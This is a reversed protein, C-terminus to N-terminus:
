LLSALRLVASPTTILVDGASSLALGRIGGSPPPVRPSIGPATPGILTTITGDPAVMRVKGDDLVFLNGSGDPVITTIDTFQGLKGDVYGSGRSSVYGASDVGYAGGITTVRGQAVKRLLDHRRYATLPDVPIHADTRDPTSSDAVYLTGDVPHIALAHPHNFVGLSPESGTWPWIVPNEDHWRKLTDTDVGDVASFFGYMPDGNSSYDKGAVTKIWMHSHDADGEDVLVRIRGSVPETFYTEVINGIRRVAISTPFMRTQDLATPGDKPDTRATGNGKFPGALTLVRGDPDIRRLTASAAELVYLYGLSDTAMDGPGSFRAGLGMGDVDGFAPPSTWPQGAFTSVYTSWGGWYVKSIRRIAQNGGDVVYLSSPNPALVRGPANFRIPDSGVRGDFYGAAAPDGAVVELFWFPIHPRLGSAAVHGLPVSRPVSQASVGSVLGTSLLLHTAAKFAFSNQSM